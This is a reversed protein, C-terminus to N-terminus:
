FRDNMTFKSPESDDPWFSDLDLRSGTSAAVDIFETLVISGTRIDGLMGMAENYLQQAYEPVSNIDAAIAEAYVKAAILRGAIARIQGPTTAPTAWGALTTASYTGALYGKIVRVVDIQYVEDQGEELRLQGNNPLHTNIDEITALTAPM